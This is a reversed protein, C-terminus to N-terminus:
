ITDLSPLTSSLPEGGSSKDILINPLWHLTRKLSTYINMLYVENQHNEPRSFHPLLFLGQLPSRSLSYNVIPHYGVPEIASLVTLPLQTNLQLHDPGQNEPPHRMGNM